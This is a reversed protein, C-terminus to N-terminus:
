FGLGKVIGCFLKSLAPRATGAAPGPRLCHAGPQPASGHPERRLCPAPDPAPRGVEIVTVKSSDVVQGLARKAKHCFPCYSKSFVVIQLPGPIM